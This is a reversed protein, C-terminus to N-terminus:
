YGSKSNGSMRRSRGSVQSLHGALPNKERSVRGNSILGYSFPNKTCEVAVPARVDGIEIVRQAPQEVQVRLDHKGSVAAPEFAPPLHLFVELM